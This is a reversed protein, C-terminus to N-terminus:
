LNYSKCVQEPIIIGKRKCCGEVTGATVVNAYVTVLWIRSSLYKYEFNEVILMGQDMGDGILFHNVEQLVGVGRRDSRTLLGLTSCDNVWWYLKKRGHRSNSLGYLM